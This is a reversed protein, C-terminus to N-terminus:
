DNDPLLKVHVRINRIFSGEALEMDEAHTQGPIDGNDELEVMIWNYVADRAAELADELDPGDAECCELDPVTVHYGKDDKHPTLVAPYTFTM